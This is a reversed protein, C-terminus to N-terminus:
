LTRFAFAMGTNTRGLDLPLFVGVSQVRDGVAWDDVPKGILHTLVQLEEDLEVMGLVYPTEGFYGPPAQRIVTYSTVTGETRLEIEKLDAGFCSVCRRRVPFMKQNCDVCHSGLLHVTGDANPDGCTGPQIQAAQNGPCANSMANTEFGM